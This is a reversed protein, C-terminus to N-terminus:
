DKLSLIYKVMIRADEMSLHPHPDMVANGWAGSGGSIVKHALLEIYGDNVPYRKAIDRFAPGKARTDHTHCLYCDSYAILVEGRNRVQEPITDSKGPIARIYDKRKRTITDPGPLDSSADDGCSHLIFCFLVILVWKM